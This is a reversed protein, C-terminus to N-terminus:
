GVREWDSNGGPKQAAIKHKDKTHNDGMQYPTSRFNGVFEIVEGRRLLDGGEALNSGKTQSKETRWCNDGEKQPNVSSQVSSEFEKRCRQIRRSRKTLMIMM